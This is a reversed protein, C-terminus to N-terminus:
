LGLERRRGAVLAAGPRITEPQTLWGALHTLAIDGLVAVHDARENLAPIYHFGRGGAAEYTKRGEHAIEDLTELCDVAFGPCVVHASQHGARGWEALVEDTYPRLWEAPGFRSQFAMQWESDALGLAQAAQVATTQCEGFYPDGKRSYSQPIGHFSFLLREPRGHTAWAARITAALAALYGPHTAYHAVTRLEPLRRWRKLEAFVADHMAATTTASYQPFLPLALVRQVGRAQLDRLGAAIAPQGYRMGVMVPIDQGARASLDAQLAQALAQLRLWLPSGQGTWIRAYLRASRAPRTTLIALHLVPLWLWRPLEVIRPDGLFEALYPRLDAATPAAPTGTNM